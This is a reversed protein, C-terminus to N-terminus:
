NKKSELAMQARVEDVLGSPLLRLSLFVLIPIIVIDDLHGIVPIFDPIIDVPSIAYFVAAGLLIRATKPCYPHEMVRRYVHIEGIFRSVFVKVTQIAM